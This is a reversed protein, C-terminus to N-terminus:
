RRELDEAVGVKCGVELEDRARRCQAIFLGDVLEGHAESPGQSANPPCEHFDRLDNCVGDRLPLLECM